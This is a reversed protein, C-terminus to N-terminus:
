QGVVLGALRAAQANTHCVIAGASKLQSITEKLGQPDEKTGTVCTIVHVTRGGADAEDIASRIAGGLELGPNPHVGFGIVADLM